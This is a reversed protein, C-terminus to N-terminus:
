PGCVGATCSKSGGACPTGDAAKATGKCVGASCAATAQCDIACATGSLVKSDCGKTKDCFDETCPNQDDCLLVTGACTGKTCVDGQTCVSGDSCPTSPDLPLNVCGAKPDCSDKTCYQGDDCSTAAGALCVGGGCQDNGTCVNGDDCATAPGPLHACGKLKDCSDLTCGNGDDCNVATGKCVSQTCADPLTCANGDECAKGEASTATCGVAPDCADNTCPNADDCAKAVGPVCKGDKCKDVLTCASGDSCPDENQVVLCGSTPKCTQDTCPNGDDCDLTKGVCAGDKCADSTTCKTGDDCPDTTKTSVCGKKPDCTDATCPNGDNCQKVFPAHSCGLPGDCNDTTCLNGDDCLTGEDAKGDCNDDGGDCVEVKPTKASCDGLGNKGCSRTGKCTGIHTGDAKKASAFCPTQALDEKALQSCICVGDDPVCHTGANTGEVTLTQKCVYGTPCDPQDVCAPACYFGSAGKDGSAAVCSSVPETLTKCAQSATCAECLRSLRPACVKVASGDSTTVPKCGFGVACTGKDSCPGACQKGKNSPLCASGPCDKDAKCTCGPGGPCAAATDPPPLDPNAAIDPTAASDVAAAVDAATEAGASADSNAKTLLQDDAGCAALLAQVVPWLPLSRPMPHGPRLRSARRWSVMHCRLPLFPRATAVNPM